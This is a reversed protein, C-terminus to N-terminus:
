RRVDLGPQALFAKVDTETVLNFDGPIAHKLCAAAKAFDLAAQNSMGTRMGHLFGAAFADGTGIRDIIGALPQALTVIEAGERSFFLAALEHHDVSHQLRLTSAIRSLRPFSAFAAEAAQRRREAPDHADFKQGLVLAIDRDDVFALTACALIERLIAPGDGHWAAWLKGRYNGDFSVPVGAECAAKAAGLAAAAGNPGIAPTVGSLHLASAGKLAEGWDVADPSAEAFASGARDYIVDAPRLLAGPTLFYLGMRGPSFVVRTVDVGYRRLEDTAARGLANDPVFSVMRAAQGLRSLSVAVNAEAGGICVDLQPSQLLLENQPASLRVLIEGFCVIPGESLPRPKSSKTM